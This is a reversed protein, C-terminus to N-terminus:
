AGRTARERRHVLFALAAQLKIAVDGFRQRTENM